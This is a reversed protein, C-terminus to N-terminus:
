ATAARLERLSGVPLHGAGLAVLVLGDWSGALEALLEGTDGLGTQVVAVRHELNSVALAPHRIPRAHLWLRGEVVRGIPGAAPPPLEAVLDAADLAPVAREGRM